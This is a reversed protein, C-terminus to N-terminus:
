LYVELGNVAVILNDRVKRIQGNPLKFNRIGAYFDAQLPIVDHHTQLEGKATIFSVTVPEKRAFMRRATSIHIADM